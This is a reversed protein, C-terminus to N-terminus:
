KLIAILETALVNLLISVLQPPNLFSSCVHNLGWLAYKGALCFALSAMTQNHDKETQLYVSKYCLAM